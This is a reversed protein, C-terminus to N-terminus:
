EPSQAYACHNGERRGGGDDQAFSQKIILSEAARESAV